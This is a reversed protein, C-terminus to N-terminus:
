YKRPTERELLLTKAAKDIVEVVDRWTPREIQRQATLLKEQDIADVEVVHHLKIAISMRNLENILEPYKPLSIEEYPKRISKM